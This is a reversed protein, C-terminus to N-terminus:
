ESTLVEHTLRLYPMILERTTQSLHRGAHQALMRYGDGLVKRSFFSQLITRLWYLLQDTLLQEDDRVMAITCHRMVLAMDRITKEEFHEHRAVLKSHTEMLERVAGTIIAEEAEELEHMAELRDELTSAYAILRDCEETQLYRGRAHEFMTEINRNM